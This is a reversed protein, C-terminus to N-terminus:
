NLDYNNEILHKAFFYPMCDVKMRIVAEFDKRVLKSSYKCFKEKYVNYLENKNEKISKM